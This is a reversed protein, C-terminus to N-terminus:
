AVERRNPFSKDEIARKLQSMGFQLKEYITLYRREFEGMCIISRPRQPGFTGDIGGFREGTATQAGAILLHYSTYIGKATKWFEEEVESYRATLDPISGDM